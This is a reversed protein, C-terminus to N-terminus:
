NAKWTHIEAGCVQIESFQTPYFINKIGMVWDLQDGQANPKNKRGTFKKSYNEQYKRRM